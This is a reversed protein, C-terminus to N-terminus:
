RRAEASKVMLRADADIRSLFPHLGQEQFYEDTARRAGPWAPCAYDDIILIGGDVLRPFLHVLEHKTSGYYDTDLRL